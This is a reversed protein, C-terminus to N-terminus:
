GSLPIKEIIFSDCSANSAGAPHRMEWRKRKACYAEWEANNSPTDRIETPVRPSKRTYIDCKSVFSQAAAENIFAQIPYSGEYEICGMVLFINHKKMERIRERKM